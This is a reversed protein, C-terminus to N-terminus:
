ASEHGPGSVSSRRRKSRVSSSLSVQEAAMTARRNEICRRVKFRCRRMSPRANRCATLSTRKSIAHSSSAFVSMVSLWTAATRFYESSLAKVRAKRRQDPWVGDAHRALWRWTRFTRRSRLGSLDSRELLSASGALREFPPWSSVRSAFDEQPARRKVRAGGWIGPGGRGSCFRGPDPGMGCPLGLSTLRHGMRDLLLHPYPCVQSWLCAPRGRVHAWAQNRLGNPVGPSGNRCDKSVAPPWM